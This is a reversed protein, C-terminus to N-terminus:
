WARMIAIFALVVLCATQIIELAHNTVTPM